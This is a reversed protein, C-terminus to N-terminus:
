VWVSPRAPPQTHSDPSLSDFMPCKIEAICDMPDPSEEGRAMWWHQALLSLLIGLILGLYFNLYGEKTSNM